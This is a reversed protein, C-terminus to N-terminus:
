RSGAAMNREPLWIPRAPERLGGRRKRAWERQYDRMRERTCPQCEYDHHDLKGQTCNAGATLLTGCTRCVPLLTLDRAV